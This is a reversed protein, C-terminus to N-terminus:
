TPTSSPPTATAKPDPTVGPGNSANFAAMAEAIAESNLLIRPVDEPTLEPHNKRIALWFCKYMGAPSQLAEAVEPSKLTLRNAQQFAAELLARRDEPELDRVNRTYTGLYSDRCWAMLEGWDQHTLPTLRYEVGAITMTRTSATADEIRTM